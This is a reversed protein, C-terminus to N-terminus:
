YKIFYNAAYIPRYLYFYYYMIMIDTSSLDDYKPGYTADFM